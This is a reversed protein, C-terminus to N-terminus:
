AKEGEEVVWGWMFTFERAALRCRRSSKWPHELLHVRFDKDDMLQRYIWEEYELEAARTWTHERYWGDKDFEIDKPDAGVAECM